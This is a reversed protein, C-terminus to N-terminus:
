TIKKVGKKSRMGRLPLSVYFVTGQNEQRKSSYKKNPSEFWIKGGAQELVSRIIYLGLGTGKITSDVANSARFLKTFIKGQESKPIGQGTDGVEILLDHGKIDIKLNIQGHNPTYKVANSLLNQFIINVLNPDAPIKSLKKNYKKTFKINKEDIQPKLEKIEMEAFKVFDVPQTEIAFTGLEIRSVNLLANVLDTMRRNGIHIENVFEKQQKNLKGVDGMLLLEAYWNITSLPTRLQHSALSVFESKAQDVEVEKSGDRFLIIVGDEEDGQFMPAVVGMVSFTAGNPSQCYIKDLPSINIIDSNKVVQKVLDVNKEKKSGTDRKFFRVLDILNKGISEVPTTRLLMGGIQNMILVKGRGNCVVLGEGMSSLVANLRDREAELENKMKTLIDMQHKVKKEARKRARTEFGLIDFVVQGVVATILVLVCTIIIPISYRYLFDIYEM